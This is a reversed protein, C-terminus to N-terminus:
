LDRCRLMLGQVINGSITITNESLILLTPSVTNPSLFATQGSPRVSKHLWGSWQWRQFISELGLSLKWGPEASKPLM